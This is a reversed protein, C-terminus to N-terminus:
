FLDHQARLIWWTRNNKPSRPPDDGKTILNKPKWGGGKKVAVLTQSSKASVSASVVQRPGPFDEPAFLRLFQIGVLHNQYWRGRLYLAMSEPHNRSIKRPTRSLSVGRFNLMSFISTQFIIKRKLQTIRLNWTLIGPHIEFVHSLNKTIWGGHSKKFDWNSAVIEVKQDLGPWPFEGQGSKLPWPIASNGPNQHHFFNFMPFLEMWRGFDWTAGLPCLQSNWSYFKLLNQLRWLWWPWGLTWFTCCIIVAKGSYKKWIIVYSSRGNQTGFLETVPQWNVM